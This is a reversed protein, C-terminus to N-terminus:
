SCSVSGDLVEPASTIATVSGDAVVATLIHSTVSADFLSFFIRAGDGPWCMSFNSEATGGYHKLTAITRVNSGDGAMRKLALNAFGSPDFSLIEFFAIEAGSPSWTPSYLDGTGKYLIQAIGGPTARGIHTDAPCAETNNSLNPSYLFVLENTVSQRPGWAWECAARGEWLVQRDTAGPTPSQSVIREMTVSIAHSVSEGYIVRTGAANWSPTDRGRGPGGLATGTAADWDRIYIDISRDHNSAGTYGAYALKRSAPSQAVWFGFPSYTIEGTHSAGDLSIVGHREAEDRRFTVRTAGLAAYPITELVMEEHRDPPPGTLGGSDSGCSVLLACGILNGIKMFVARFHIALMRGRSPSPIRVIVYFRRKLIKAVIFPFDIRSMQM